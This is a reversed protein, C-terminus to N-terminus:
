VYYKELQKGILFYRLLRGFRKFVKAKTRLKYKLAFTLVCSQQLLRVVFNLSSFNNTFYYYKVVSYIMKNFVMFIDSYKKNVAAKLATAVFVVGKCKLFGCDKLYSLIINTPAYLNLFSLLFRSLLMYKKRLLCTYKVTPYNDNYAAIKSISCRFSKNSVIFILYNDVMYFHETTLKIYDFSTYM